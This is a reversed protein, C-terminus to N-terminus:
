QTIIGNKLAYNVLKQIGEINLKQQINKIHIEVTNTSTNLIEALTAITKGKALCKLVEKERDTILIKHDSLEAEIDKNKTNPINKSTFYQDSTKLFLAKKLEEVSADKTLYANAGLKKAKDILVKEQYMTLMIILLDPLQTRIEKLVELGNKGILNLDLFIVDIKHKTLEKSVLDGNEIIKIVEVGDFKNLIEKLGSAFLKQDEVIIVKKQMKESM